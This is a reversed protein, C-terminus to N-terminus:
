IRRQKLLFTKMDGKGKVAIVGRLQLEFHQELLAATTESVQIANALGSSEMRSATNVTDGWLDYSLKRKGIVGAVVPGTHIGIRFQIPAGDDWHLHASATQFDLALAAIREAHDECRLPCGGVAMYADGITKIKEVGHKKTLADLEAFVVNLIRVLSQPETRTAIGTFGVIDAFLVTVSPFLDSITSEGAKLRFAISEPLMNLLLEDSELRLLEIQRLNSTLVYHSTGAIIMAIALGFAWQPWAQSSPLIQSLLLWAVLVTLLTAVLAATRFIVLGAVVTLLLLNVTQFYDAAWYFHLLTNIFMFGIAVLVYANSAAAKKSRRHLWSAFLALVASAEAVGAMRRNTPPALILYHISGLLLYFIALAPLLFRVVRSSSTDMAERLKADVERQDM